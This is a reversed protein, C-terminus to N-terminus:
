NKKIWKYIESALYYPASGKVKHIPLGKNVYNDVTRISCGIMECVEVKRLIELDLFYKISKAM